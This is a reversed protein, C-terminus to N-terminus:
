GLQIHEADIKLVGHGTIVGTQASVAMLKDVKLNYHSCEVNEIESVEKFSRRSKSFLLDVLMTLRTGVWEIASVTARVQTSALHVTGHTANWASSTTQLNQFNLWANTGQLSVQPAELHLDREGASVLVALIWAHEESIATLVTDGLQPIALCSAARKGWHIQSDLIIFHEPLVESVVATSMKYAPKAINSGSHAPMSMAEQSQHPTPFSM